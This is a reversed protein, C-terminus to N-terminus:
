RADGPREAGVGAEADPVTGWYKAVAGADIRLDVGTIFAAQPSLLFSVAAAYDSPSPMQGMPLLARRLEARSSAQWRDGPEGWSAARQQAEGMDTSTPTISNVRIGHPALDMAAARTFGLIASKATSYAINGPQGQHAATSAVNVVAGKSGRHIIADAVHKTFLFASTLIVDLQQHWAQAPMDLLGREDYYAAANVLGDVRGLRGVVEDICRRVASDDTADIVAATAEGGTARIEAACSEAYTAKRDVCVLTAGASATGLAIGAGINPSTGVVVVVLDELM